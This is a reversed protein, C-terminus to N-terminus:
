MRGNYKSKALNLQWLGALPDSQAFCTQPLAAIGLSLLALGTLM